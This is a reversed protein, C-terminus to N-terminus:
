VLGFQQAQGATGLITARWIAAFHNPYSEHALMRDVWQWRKDADDNDVYDRSDILSPIRGALDLHLRRFFIAHDAAEVPKLDAEKWKAGILADIRQSLALVKAKYANDAPTQGFLPAPAVATLFAFVVWSRCIRRVM